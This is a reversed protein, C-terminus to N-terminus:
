NVDRQNNIFNRQQRLAISRTEGNELVDALSVSDLFQEIEHSLEDWVLTLYCSEQSKLTSSLKENVARIISSVPIEEPLRSLTYGGGPGRTSEVLGNKKLLAFLQELYSLSLNQREAINALPTPRAGRQLALDLMATVAYRGKTTMKM